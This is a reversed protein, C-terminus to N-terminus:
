KEEQKDAAWNFFTQWQKAEELHAKTDALARHAKDKGFSATQPPILDRNHSLVRGARRVVGIDFPFYAFWSALEPMKDKILQLDFAAVGSGAIMYEGKEQTSKTKLMNIIDQEVSEITDTSEKCAKLLGSDLHMQLVVPNEGLATKAEPTIGLQSEYGFYPKLDFDTVIFAFELIHVKSFDNGVPLSTTEADMWFLASPYKYAM